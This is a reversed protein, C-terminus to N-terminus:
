FMLNKNDVSESDFLWCKKSQFKINEQQDTANM